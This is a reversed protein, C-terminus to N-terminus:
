GITECFEVETQWAGSADCLMAEDHEASCGAGGFGPSFGIREKMLLGSFSPSAM